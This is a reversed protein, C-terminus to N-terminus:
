RPMAWDTQPSTEVLEIPWGALSAM